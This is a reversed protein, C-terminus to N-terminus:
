TQRDASDDAWQFSPASTLGARVSEPKLSFGVPVASDAMMRCYVRHRM